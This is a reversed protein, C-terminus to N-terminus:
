SKKGYVRSFHKKMIRDIVPHGSLVIDRLLVFKEELWREVNLGDDHIIVRNVLKTIMRQAQKYEAISEIFGTARKLSCYLDPSLVWSAYGHKGHLFM